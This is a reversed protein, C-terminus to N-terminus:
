PTPRLTAKQARARAALDPRKLADYCEVLLDYAAADPGNRSLAGELMEAGRDPQGAVLLARAAQVQTPMHDQRQRADEGLLAAQQGKNVRDFIPKAREAQGLRTLSLAVYYQAFLYEREGVEPKIRELVAIAEAYRGVEHLITGRLVIGQLYGADLPVYANLAEEAKVADHQEWYCRALRTGVELRNANPDGKLLDLFYREAEAYRATKMALAGAQVRYFTDDPELELVRVTDALADDYRGFRTFVQSRHRFAEAYDPRLECLRNLYPEIDGATGNTARLAVVLTELVDTDDPYRELYRKLEPTATQKGQATRALALLSDRWTTRAEHRLYSRLAVGALGLILLGLGM